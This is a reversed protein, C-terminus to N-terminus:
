RRAAVPGEGGGGAGGGRVDDKSEHHQEKHTPSVKGYRFYYERAFHVLNLESLALRSLVQGGPPPATCPYNRMDCDAKGGAGCGCCGLLVGSRRRNTCAIIAVAARSKM